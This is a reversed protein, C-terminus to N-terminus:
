DHVNVCAECLFCEHVCCFCVCWHFVCMRCLFVCVCVGVPFDYSLGDIMHVCVCVQEVLKM